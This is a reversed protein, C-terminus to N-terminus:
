ARYPMSPSTSLRCSPPRMGALRCGPVAHRRLTRVSRATAMRLAGQPGPGDAAQPQGAGHALGAGDGGPQGAHVLLRAGRETRLPRQGDIRQRGHVAPSPHLDAAMALDLSLRRLGAHRAPRHDAPDVVARGCRRGGGASGALVARLVDARRRHLLVRTEPQQPGARSTGSGGSGRPAHSPLEHRSIANPIAHGAPLEIM